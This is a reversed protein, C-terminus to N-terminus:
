PQYTMGKRLGTGNVFILDNERLYPPRKPKKDEASTEAATEESSDGAEEVDSLACYYYGDAEDIINIRRFDVVTEDLIFVGEEGDTVRIASIPIKYGEFESVTLTVNQMRSFDYGDPIRGCELLVIADTGSTLTKYLEMEVPNKINNRLVTEYTEGNKLRAAESASMHCAVYWKFDSVIKGYSVTGSQILATNESSNIMDMVSSYTLADINESTFIGEYGDTEAYYYGTKVSTVTQIVPGLTSKLNNIEAKIDSVKASFDDIRGAMIGLNRINLILSSKYSLADSISGSESARRMEILADTINREASKRDGLSISSDTYKEYFAAEERLSAIQSAAGLSSGRYIEAVSAGARVRGGDSILPVLCADASAYSGLPIENKLIYGECEILEPFTEGRAYMTEASHVFDGSLHFGVFILIGLALIVTVVYVSVRKLYDRDFFPAKKM